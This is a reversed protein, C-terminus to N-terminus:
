ALTTQEPQALARAWYCSQVLSLELQLPLMFRPAVGRMLELSLVTSKQMWYRQRSKSM